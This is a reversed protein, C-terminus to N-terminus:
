VAWRRYDLLVVVLAGGLLVGVLVPGFPQDLALSAAFAVFFAAVGYGTSIVLAARWGTAIRFALWPPVFVLAFAGMLGVTGVGVAMGLAVLVDFGLHWRWAPLRNAREYRPFFRARIVRPMLWPLAIGCAVLLGTAAVLEAAGAFPLQGDVLAHGMAGGLTTNAAILFMLSWGTLIMVAYATNGRSGLVSKAMAGAMAGVAGGAVVPVHVVLGALGAAAALHALGLAALWEDRLRLLTGLLPLMVAMVLGVALPLRFLPDVILTIDMM